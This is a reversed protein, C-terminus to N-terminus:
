SPEETLSYIRKLEEAVCRDTYPTVSSRIATGDTKKLSLLRCVSQAYADVNDADVLYGNIGPRVLERHGRNDSAVVPKGCLMAELINLPLGERHSCAIEM